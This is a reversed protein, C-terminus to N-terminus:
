HGSASNGKGGFIELVSAVPASIEDALHYHEFIALGVLALIGLYIGVWTEHWATHIKTRAAKRWTIEVEVTLGFVRPHFTRKIRGFRPHHRSVTVKHADGEVDPQFAELRWPHPGALTTNRAHLTTGVPCPKRTGEFMIMHTM